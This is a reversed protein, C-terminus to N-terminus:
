ARQRGVRLNQDLLQAIGVKRRRRVATLGMLLPSVSPKAKPAKKRGSERNTDAHVKVAAFGVLTSGVRATWVRGGATMCTSEVARAQAVRWDLYFHRFVIPELAQELSRRASQVLARLDSLLTAEDGAAAAAAAAVPAPIRASRNVARKATGRGPGPREVTKKM